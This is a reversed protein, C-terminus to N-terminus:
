YRNYRYIMMIESMTHKLIGSKYGAADIFEGAIVFLDPRDVYCTTGHDTAGRNGSAQVIFLPKLDDAVAGM